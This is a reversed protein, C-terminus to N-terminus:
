LLVVEKTTKLMKILRIIDDRLHDNELMLYAETHRNQMSAQYERRLDENKKELLANEKKLLELEQLLRDERMGLRDVGNNAHGLDTERENLLSKMRELEAEKQLLDKALIFNSDRM